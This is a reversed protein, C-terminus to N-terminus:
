ASFATCCGTLQCLPRGKGKLSRVAQPRTDIHLISSSLHYTSMQNSNRVPVKLKNKRIHREVRHLKIVIDLEDMDSARNPLSIETDINAAQKGKGEESDKSKAQLCAHRRLPRSCPQLCCHHAGRDSAAKL